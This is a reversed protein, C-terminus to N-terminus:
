GLFAPPPEEWASEVATAVSTTALATGVACALFIPVALPPCAIAVAEVAIPTAVMWTATATTITASTVALDKWSSEPLDDLNGVNNLVPRDYGDRRPLNLWVLCEGQAIQGDITLPFLNGLIVFSRPIVLTCYSPILLHFTINRADDGIRAELGVRACLMLRFIAFLDNSLGLLLPQRSGSEHRIRAFAGHWHTDPHYIFFRHQRFRHKRLRHQRFRHKRDDDTRTYEAVKLNFFDLINRAFGDPGGGGGAVLNNHIRLQDAIGKLERRIQEAQYIKIIELVITTASFLSQIQNGIGGKESLVWTSPPAQTPLTAAPPASSETASIVM